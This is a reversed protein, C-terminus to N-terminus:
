HCQGNGSRYFELGRISCVKDRDDRCNGPADLLLLFADLDVIDVVRSDWGSGVPILSPTANALNSDQVESIKAAM